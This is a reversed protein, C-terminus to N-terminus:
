GAADWRPLRAPWPHGDPLGTSAVANEMYDPLMVPVESTPLILLDWRDEYREFSEPLVRAREPGANRVRRANPDNLWTMHGIWASAALHDRPLVWCRPKADHPGLHVM